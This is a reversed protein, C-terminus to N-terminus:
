NLSIRHLMITSSVLAVVWGAPIMGSISLQYFGPISDAFSALPMYVLLANWFGPYKTFLGWNRFQFIVSMGMGLILVQFIIPGAVVNAPIIAKAAHYLVMLYLLVIFPIWERGIHKRNIIWPITLVLFFSSVISEFTRTIEM